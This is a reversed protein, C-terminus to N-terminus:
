AARHAPGLRSARNGGTLVTFFNDNYQRFEEQKRGAKYREKLDDEWQSLSELPGSVTM